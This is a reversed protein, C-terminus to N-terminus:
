DGNKDVFEAFEDPTGKVLVAGDGTDAYAEDGSIYVEVTTIKDDQEDVMCINYDASLSQTNLTKAEEGGKATILGTLARFQEFSYIFCAANDSAGDFAKKMDSLTDNDIGVSEPDISLESTEAKSGKGAAAANPQQQSQAFLAGCIIIVAFCAALSLYRVLGKRKARASSVRVNDMIRETLGTPLAANDGLAHSVASFASHLRRCDECHRIHNELESNEEDGLEGDVLESILVGFYECDKL